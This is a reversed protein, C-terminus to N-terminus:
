MDEIFQRFLQRFLGAMLTGSMDIRKKGYHDRDDETARGLSATLLRNVMYGVFYAKKLSGDPSTSIHPLFNTELVRNAYDLRYRDKMEPNQGRIAIYNLAAEQVNFSTKISQCEELSARLLDVMDTDSQDYIILDQMKKDETIGLALLLIGIPIDEKIM